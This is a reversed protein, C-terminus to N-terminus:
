TAALGYKETTQELGIALGHVPVPPSTAFFRKRWRDRQQTKCSHRFDEVKTNSIVEQQDLRAGDAAHRPPAVFSTAIARAEL